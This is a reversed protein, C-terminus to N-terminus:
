QDRECNTDRSGVVLVPGPVLLGPFGDAPYEKGTEDDSDLENAEVDDPSLVSSECWEVGRGPCKEYRVESVKGPERESM